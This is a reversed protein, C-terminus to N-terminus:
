KVPVDNSVVLFCTSPVVQGVEPFERCFDPRLSYESCAFINGQKVLRLCNFVPVLDGGFGYRSRVHVFFPYNKLFSRINYYNVDPISIGICCKGCRLCNM